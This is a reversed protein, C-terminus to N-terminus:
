LPSSKMFCEFRSMAAHVRPTLGCFTGKFNASFYGTASWRRNLFISSADHPTLRRPHAQTLHAVDPSHKRLAPAFTGHRKMRTRSFLYLVYTSYVYNRANTAYVRRVCMLVDKRAHTRVGQAYQMYQQMDMSRMLLRMAENRTYVHVHQKNKQHMQLFLCKFM